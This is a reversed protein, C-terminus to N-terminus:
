DESIETKGSKKIPGNTAALSDAELSQVDPVVATTTASAFFLSLILIVPNLKMKSEYKEGINVSSDVSSTNKENRAGKLGDIREPLVVRLM